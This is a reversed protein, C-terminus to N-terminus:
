TNNFDIEAMIQAPIIVLQGATLAEKGAYEIRCGTIGHYIKVYLPILGEFTEDNGSVSYLEGFIFGHITRNAPRWASSLLATKIPASQAITGTITINANITYQIFYGCKTCTLGYDNITANAGSWSSVIDQSYSPVAGTLGLSDVYQKTAYDGNSVPTDGSVTGSFSANGSEDVTFADLKAKEGPTIVGATEDTAAPITASDTGSTKAGNTYEDKAFNITVNGATPSVSTVDRLMKANRVDWLEVVDLRGDLAIDAAKLDDIDNEVNEIRNDYGALQALIYDANLEHLDTQPYKNFFRFIAM